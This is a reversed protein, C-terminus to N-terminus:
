SQESRRHDGGCPQGGSRDTFCLLCFTLRVSTLNVTITFEPHVTGSVQTLALVKVSDDPHNLGGQLEAKCNQALYAPDLVQLVRGLIEVCM